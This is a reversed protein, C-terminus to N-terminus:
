LTIELDIMEGDRYVTLVMTDGKQHTDRIKNLDAVSAIAQGDAKLILDGKKIGGSSAPSDEAVSEVQVGHTTDSGRIGIILGSASTGTGTLGETVQAIDNSPVALSIGSVGSSIMTTIMGVARGNEDFLMCGACDAPVADTQLLNISQGGSLEVGNNVGCITGLTMTTGLQANLFRGVAAVRAGSTLASSDAFEVPVLGDKDIKLIACDTKSDIGVVQAPYDQGDSLRVTTGNQDVASSATLIYGDASIVTGTTSQQSMMRGFFGGGSVSQSNVTCISDALREGLGAFGGAAESQGVAAPASPSIVTHPRVNPLVLATYAAFCVACTVAAALAGAGWAPLRKKKKVKKYSYCGLEDLVYSYEERDSM